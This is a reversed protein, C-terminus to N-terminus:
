QENFILFLLSPYISLFNNLFKLKDQRESKILHMLNKSNNLRNELISRKKSKILNQFHIKKMPIKGAVIFYLVRILVNLQFQTAFALLNRNFLPNGLFLNKLFTKEKLMFERLRLKKDDNM